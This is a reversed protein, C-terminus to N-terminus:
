YQTAHALVNKFGCENVEPAQVNGCGSGREHVREAIRCGGGRERRSGEATGMVVPHTAKTKCM